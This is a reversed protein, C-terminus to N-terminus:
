ALWSDLTDWTIEKIQRTRRDILKADWARKGGVKLIPEVACSYKAEALVSIAKKSLNIGTAKAEAGLAKLDAQTRTGVHAYHLYKVAWAKNDVYKNIDTPLLLLNGVKQVKGDTYIKTDWSHGSPPNQPAVHELSKHDKAVWRSLMLMTCVGRNGAVSLGPHKKDAVRDHAAVFLVFRCIGKLETYSLFKESASIWAKKSRIGEHALVASFYAKLDTALVAKPHDKWNHKGIKVSSTSGRFYKRYIEDLGSTSRASRWLTFFAACAKAAEVFEDFSAEKDLAQSYFRALIPASLKSNADKLFQVLLSVFEGDARSDLEKIIHPTTTEEM